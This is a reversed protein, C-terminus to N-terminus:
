HAEFWNKGWGTEVLVPIEGLPLAGEMEMKVLTILDQLEDTFAEFVLEDHVQLMMLSRIKEAKMRKHVKLMAVKMMDSATGQIPMNIAAREAAARNNQNKSRIDPFYRRRGLMTEAYGKNRTSEITEDIYKKIGPYKKFYNDIISKAEGRDIDLRQSLGFAGLGYMIGFNVTKATRRMAADVKELDTEFLIAATASHVDLGNVFADKLAKDGSYYAMIRIEIQSYDASLIVRDSEVGHIQFFDLGSSKVPIRNIFQPVFAKRIKRGLETRIPINQLNPDASSLRGTSAVTQNYTTHIRGTRPNVLKPLADVYTTKLKVLQRYDLLLSAIPYTKALESLVAADTSYGTKTKRISPIMLKEFLIHSLQKPSDINFATGAENFIKQTLKATEQEIELSFENLAKEDIAAGNSEMEVLTEILPFEVEEALKRMNQNIIEPLMKNRLKLALDADECAYDTIDLPDLDRMSRQSTKKDGILISIPIPTYSLWKQSLADLNHQEDANLLYSAVMSDFVIPHLTVGYRKLIYADFKLNQGCKGISESEFLSKLKNLVDSIELRRYKEKSPYPVKPESAFLGLPEQEITNEEIKDDPLGFVSIYYAKNEKISLSIGVIECENRDLSSTELDVSLLNADSIEELMTQLGNLDDILRYDTSKADFRKPIKKNEDDEKLISTDKAELDNFNSLASVSIESSTNSSDLRQEVTDFSKEIKNQKLSKELWKHSLTNFGLEKFLALLGDYDPLSKRIDELKVNLPVQCDITVLYKSLFANDKNELLKDKLAKKDLEDINEYLNEINGYKQILPAATKPGIGKVGPINDSSDGILAMVDIVQEPKVGFKDFVQEYSVIDFEGPNKGPKYLSTSDDVLQYYDKDNTLMAVEIGKQSARVALTGIIDDAEFGPKEIRPINILDLIQKIRLLQPVLDEPFEDRNAKYEAYYEHRFTPEKTDFVVAINEPEEKELLNTLINAFAFVAFTPEGTASKLGSASMAHYARFVLSMGDILFLKKMEKGM